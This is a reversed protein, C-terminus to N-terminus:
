YLGFASGPTQFARRLTMGLVSFLSSHDLEKKRRTLKGRLQGKWYRDIRRLNLALVGCLVVYGVRFLGRVPVKDKPFPHMLQFMTAEVAPRLARAEAKTQEFRRRRQSSAAREKPVRLWSHKSNTQIPCQAQLPCAQCSELPFDLRFSQGKASRHICASQGAPCTAATVVGHEDLDMAFDAMVLKGESRDPLTGTLASNIQEMRGARLVEDVGPGVYEGDNVLLNLEMRAQIAPVDAKLLEIDSTRNPAVSAQTVLQVPNSPDCTESLNAVYGKFPHNNKVRYSAEQDDLSQLCGAQIEGNSKAQVQEEVLKFNEEFFRHVTAYVSEQGYDTQLAQLLSHLVVGVQQIHDWVAERGKIRYTYQGAGEKIYPAFGEQYRVQDEESLIRYLRQLATILLELRSLDAINSAIDTSDMRQMGTKIELAKLQQDTIDAFTLAVLNIGTKLVYESLAQRFYYLTRLDFDGEGFNDCGLAYRVQVDFLFHEYLEEDSWGRGAKLIELGLLVNVAVNPRSPVQAYLVAFRDECIRGFVQTRFTTAWSNELIKKSRDPLQSVHSILLPQISRKNKRFM